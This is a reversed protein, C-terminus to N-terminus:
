EKQAHQITLDILKLVEEHTREPADNWRPLSWPSGFDRYITAGLAEELQICRDVALANEWTGSVVQCAGVM